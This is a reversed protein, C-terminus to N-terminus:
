YPECIFMVTPALWKPILPHPLSRAEIIRLNHRLTQQLWIWNFGLHFTGHPPLRNLRDARRGALPRRLVRSKRHLMVHHLRLLISFLFSVAARSRPATGTTGKRRVALLTEM